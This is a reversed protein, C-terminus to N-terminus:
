RLIRWLHVREVDFEDMTVGLLVDDRVDLIRISDAIAITALPTGDLEIIWWDKQGNGIDFLRAWVRAESDLQLRDVYSLDGPGSTEELVREAIERAEPDLEAVYQESFTERWAATSPHRPVPLVLSATSGDQHIVTLIADTSLGVVAMSDDFAIVEKAGLPTDGSSYGRGISVRYHESGDSLHVTDVGDIGLLAYVIPVRFIQFDPVTAASFTRAEPDALLYAGNDFMWRLSAPADAVSFDIRDTRIHAGDTHFVSVRLARWDYAAIEGGALERVWGIQTFEGPGEGSGGAIWSVEGKRTFVRIQGSAADTVAVRGDSLVTGHYAGSLLFATEGELAGISLIPESSLSWAPVDGSRDMREAAKDCASIMTVVATIVAATARIRVAM